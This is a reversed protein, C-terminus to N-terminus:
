IEYSKIIHQVQLLSENYCNFKILSITKISKANKVVLNEDEIMSEIDYDQIIIYNILSM